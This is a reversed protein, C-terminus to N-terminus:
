EQGLLVRNVMDTDLYEQFEVIKGDRVRILHLYTNNYPRGERTHSSGQSRMAARNGEVVRDTEDLHIFNEDVYEAVRGVINMMDERTDATGSLATSGIMMFHINDDLLDAFGEFDRNNVSAFFRNILDHTVASDSM